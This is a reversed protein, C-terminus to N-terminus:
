RAAVQPYVPPLEAAGRIRALITAAQEALVRSPLDVDLTRLRSGSLEYRTYPSARLAGSPDLFFFVVYTAGIRLPETSADVATVLAKGIRLSGGATLFTLIRQDAQLLGTAGSKLVDVVDAVVTSFIWDSAPALQGSMTVPRVVAVAEAQRTRYEWVDMGEPAPMTFPRPNGFVVTVAEAGPPLRDQLHEGARYPITASGSQIPGAVVDGGRVGDLAAFAFLLCIAHARM